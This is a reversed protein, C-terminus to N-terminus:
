LSPTYSRFTVSVRRDREIGNDKKRAPYSHHWEWRSSGTM